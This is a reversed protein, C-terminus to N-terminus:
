FLLFDLYSVTVSLPFSRYSILLFCVLPAFCFKVLHCVNGAVFTWGELGDAKEKVTM